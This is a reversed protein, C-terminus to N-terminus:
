RNHWVLSLLAANQDASQGAVTSRRAYHSLTFTATIHRTLAYRAFASVRRTEDTRDIRVYRNRDFAVNAGFTLAPRARFSAEFGGGADNQDFASADQYRIQDVFPTLQATWRTSRYRYALQARQERFPSAIVLSNGTAVTDRLGTAQDIGALGNSAADSFQRSLRLEVRHSEGPRWGFTARLLPTARERALSPADRRFSLRAYGADLTYDTRRLTREIRAFAASRTYDRATANDFDVHQRELSFAFRTTPGLDRLARLAIDDRHADFRDTVSATSRVYRWEAVGRWGDRRGFTLTPGAALVNVKQHNGPANPALTDVPQESLTDAVGFSLREPIAIWNFRGDFSSDISDEFRRDGYRRWEVRGSLHSQISASQQSVDFSVGPRLVETSVPHTETLLLNDNHELTLDAAYDVRLAFAHLPCAACLLLLLRPLLGARRM